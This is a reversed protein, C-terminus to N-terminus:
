KVKFYENKYDMLGTFNAKYFSKEEYVYKCDTHFATLSSVAFAMDPYKLKMEGFIDIENTLLNVVFVIYNKAKIKKKAM